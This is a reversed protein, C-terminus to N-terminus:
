NEEKRGSLGFERRKRDLEHNIQRTYEIIQKGSEEGENVVAQFAFTVYRSLIYSGPVQRVGRINNRQEKLVSAMQKSWSLSQFAERNATPYRAAVGMVSELEQAYKIQTDADTWWRLFDWAEQKYRSQELIVCGVGGCSVTHDINGNEDETGPVPAVGWLGAIEPAFVSM